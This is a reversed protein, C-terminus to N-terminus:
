RLVAPTAAWIATGQRTGLRQWGLGAFLALAPRNDVAVRAWVQALGLGEGEPTRIGREPVPDTGRFSTATPALAWHTVTDVARHAVGRRRHAAAVWVGLEARAPDATFNTLGVEGAVDGDVDIVLDLALRREWREEIGDIWTAPDLGAPPENWATIDPDSWAAALAAM